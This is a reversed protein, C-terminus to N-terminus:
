FLFLWGLLFSFFAYFMSILLKQDPHAFSANDIMAEIEDPTYYTARHVPICQDLLWAIPKAIPFLVFQFARVLGALKSGVLIPESAFLAQPIIEGFILVFTVSIVVAFWPAVLDDLFVPLAEMASANALLITVLLLHHDKLLPKVKECMEIRESQLQSSDSRPSDTLGHKEKVEEKLRNKEMRIQLDLKQQDVSLLSVNLGSTIGGMLICFLSLCICLVLKFTPIDTEVIEESSTFDNISQPDISADFTMQTPQWIINQDDVFAVSGDALAKSLLTVVQATM